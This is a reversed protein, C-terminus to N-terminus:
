NPEAVSRLPKAKLAKSAVYVLITESKRKGSTFRLEHFSARFYGPQPLNLRSILDCGLCPTGSAHTESSTPAIGVLEVLKM